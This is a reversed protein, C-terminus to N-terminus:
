HMQVSREARMLPLPLGPCSIFLILGIRSRRSFPFISMVNSHILLALSNLVSKFNTM